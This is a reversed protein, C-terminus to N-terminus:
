SNPHKGNTSKGDRNRRDDKMNNGRMARARLLTVVQGVTARVWRTARVADTPRERRSGVLSVAVVGVALAAYISTALEPRNDAVILLILTAAAAWAAPRLGFWYATVGAVILTALLM